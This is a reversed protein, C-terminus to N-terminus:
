MLIEIIDKICIQAQYQAVLFYGRYYQSHNNVCELKGVM